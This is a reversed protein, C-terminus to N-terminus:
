ASALFADYAACFAPLLEFHPLAGAQLTTVQWPRVPKLAALGGYDTFDGRVGHSM